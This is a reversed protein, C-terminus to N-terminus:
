ILYKTIAKIKLMNIDRKRPIYMSGLVCKIKDDTNDLITTIVPNYKKALDNFHIIIIEALQKNM